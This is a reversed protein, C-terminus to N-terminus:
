DSSPNLDHHARIKISRANNRNRIIVLCQLFGGEERKAWGWSCSSLVPQPKSLSDAKEAHGRALYKTHNTVKKTVASHSHSILFNAVEHRHITQAALAGFDTSREKPICESYMHSTQPTNQLLRQTSAHISTYPIVLCPNSDDCLESRKEEPAHWFIALLANFSAM